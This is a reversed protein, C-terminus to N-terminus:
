TGISPAQTNERIWSSVKDQPQGAGPSLPETLWGEIEAWEMEEGEGSFSLWRHIITKKLVASYFLFRKDTKSNLLGPTAPATRCDAKDNVSENM